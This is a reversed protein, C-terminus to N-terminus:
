DAYNEVWPIAKETLRALAQISMEIHEVLTDEEKCHSLGNLSQVFMMVTPVGARCVECADHLPGSPLRHSVGCTEVIAQDAFNVLDASFQTPSCDFIPIIELSVREEDAIQQAVQKAHASQAALGSPNLNRLDLSIECMGSVATYIGPQTVVKGTTGVGQQEIACERVALAWRAAALFADRRQKMPTSGAHAAQGTFRFLYREIGNAGIVAGMPLSMSELVPGQEIHLELYGLANKLQLQANQITALNVGCRGVVEPLANGWADKLTYATEINLNGSVAGSGFLSGGFRAGEEDAWDVLRVTIPPTGNEVIGRLVELGALVNLCGDLWGGNPVSDLHGGILLTKDSKGLLTAWLNGAEDQEVKVPLAALKDKYWQRAKLWTDSWALRQAGDENGTLAQLQRLEEITRQPNVSIM